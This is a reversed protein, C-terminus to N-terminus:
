GPTVKQTGLPHDTYYCPRPLALNNQTWRGCQVALRSDVLGKGGGDEPASDASGPDSLRAQDQGLLLLGSPDRLAVWAM